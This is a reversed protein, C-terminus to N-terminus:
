PKDQRRMRIIFELGDRYNLGLASAIQLHRNFYEVDDASPCALAELSKIQQAFRAVASSYMPPLTSRLRLM